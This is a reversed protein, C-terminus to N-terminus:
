VVSLYLIQNSPSLSVSAQSPLLLMPFIVWQQHSESKKKQLSADTSPNIWEERILSSFLAYNVPMEFRTKGINENCPTQTLTM